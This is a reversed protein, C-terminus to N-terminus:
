GFCKNAPPRLFAALTRAFDDIESPWFSIQEAQIIFSITIIFTLRREFPFRCDPTALACKIVQSLPRFDRCCRSPKGLMPALVTRSDGVISLSSEYM